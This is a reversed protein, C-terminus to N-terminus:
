SILLLTLAERERRKWDLQLLQFEIALLRDVEQEIGAIQKIGQNNVEPIFRNKLKLKPKEKREVKVAEQIAERQQKRWLAAEFAKTYEEQRKRKKIGGGINVIVSFANSDDSGVANTGTVTYPGFTGADGPEVTLIGTGTDFTWGSEVAPSISYSTAGTFYSSLDTITTGSASIDPITGAFVPPTGSKGSFDGYKRWIGGAIGLRTVQAGSLAM